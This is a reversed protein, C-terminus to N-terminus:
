DVTLVSKGLAGKGQVIDRHCESAKDLTFSKGVVPRLWGNNIGAQIASLAENLEKESQNFLMIGTITSEKMMLNRPNVENPGRSGVIMVRGGLSLFPLDNGLNIHAANEIIINVGKGGTIESLSEQYGNERHNLVFHAGAKKVIEMGESTGATGIVTMGYAKAFQVAAIGVGGSAGHVLVTEGSRINGKIFLARYATLYPVGLSAGQSFDLADPLPQIHNSPVSSLEAYTGSNTSFFTFVRDGKKYQTVEEGIDEVIGASDGGLTFPLSPLRAYQGSRIYTEVPNVGVAKVRILLDKPGISPVPVGTDYKLVEPGGFEHVRVAKMTSLARQPLFCHSSSEPDHQRADDNTSNVTIWLSIHSFLFLRITHRM